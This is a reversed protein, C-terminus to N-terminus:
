ADAKRRVRAVWLRMLWRWFLLCLVGTAMGPYAMGKNMPTTSFLSSSMMYSTLLGILAGACCWKWAQPHREKIGPWGALWAGTMLTLIFATVITVPFLVVGLLSFLLLYFFGAVGLQMDGSSRSLMTMLMVLELFVPMSVATVLLSVLFIRGTQGKALDDRYNM